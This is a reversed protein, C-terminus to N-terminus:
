GRGNDPLQYMVVAPAAAPLPAGNRGTLERRNTYADGSEKAAQEYLQAALAMNGMTEAKEAMRQIARLRVARHSIGIRSTDELFTKRTEEFLAKWKASLKAGARKTPDYAECGQPTISLDFEKKVALSVATPADFCALAQVVYTRADDTLKPEGRDAM